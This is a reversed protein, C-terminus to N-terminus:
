SELDLSMVLMPQTFPKESKPLAMEPDNWDRRLIAAAETMGQEELWDAAMPATSRDDCLARRFSEWEPRHDFAEMRAVLKMCELCGGKLRNCIRRQGFYSGTSSCNPCYVHIRWRSQPTNTENSAVAFHAHQMMDRHEKATM